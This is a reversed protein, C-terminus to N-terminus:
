CVENVLWLCKWGFDHFILKPPKVYVWFIFSTFANGFFPMCIHKSNTTKKPIFNQMIIVFFIDLAFDIFYKGHKSPFIILLLWIWVILEQLDCFCSLIRFKKYEKTQSRALNPEHVEQQHHGTWAVECYQFLFLMNMICYCHMGKLHPLLFM